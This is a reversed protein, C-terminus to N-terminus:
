PADDTASASRARSDADIAALEAEALAIAQDLHHIAVAADGGAALVDRVNRLLELAKEDGIGYTKRSTLM